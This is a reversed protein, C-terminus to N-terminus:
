SVTKEGEGALVRRLEALFQSPNEVHPWHGADPIAIVRYSPFHHEIDAIDRDRIRASEVGRIFYTPREFRASEDCPIAGVLAEIGEGIAALNMRWSPSEAASFRLDQLIFLRVESEPIARALRADAEARRTISSLDLDMMAALLEEYENPYRGPAIDIVVLRAIRGPERLALTMAAKGGMSHGILTVDHLDLEELLASLDDAIVEYDMRAAHPSAGHNRLDVTM